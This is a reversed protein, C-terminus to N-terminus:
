IPEPLGSLDMTPPPTGLLSAAWAEQEAPIGGAYWLLTGRPDQWCEWLEKESLTRYGMLLVAMVALERRYVSMRGISKQLALRWCRDPYRRQLISIDTAAARHAEAWSGGFLLEAAMGGMIQCPSDRDSVVWGELYPENFRNAKFLLDLRIMQHADQMITELGHGAEHVATFFLIDGPISLMPATLNRGRVTSLMRPLLRM